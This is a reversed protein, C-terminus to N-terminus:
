AAALCVDSARPRRVTWMAAAGADLLAQIRVLLVPARALAGPADVVLVDCQELGGGGEPPTDLRRVRLLPPLAGDAEHALAAMSAAGHSRAGVLYLVRWGARACACLARELQATQDAACEVLTVARPRLPVDRVHPTHEPAPTARVV